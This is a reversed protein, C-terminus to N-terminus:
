PSQAGRVRPDSQSPWVLYKQSDGQIDACRSLNQPMLLGTMGQGQGDPTNSSLATNVTRARWAFECLSWPQSVNVSATTCHSLLLRSPRTKMSHPEYAWFFPAVMLLTRALQKSVTRGLEHKMKFVTVYKLEQERELFPVVDQLSHVRRGQRSVSAEKSAPVEWFGILQELFGSLSRYVPLCKLMNYRDAHRTHATTLPVGFPM